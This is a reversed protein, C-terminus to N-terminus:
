GCSQPQVGKARGVSDVRARGLSARTSSACARFGSITGIATQSEHVEWAYGLSAVLGVLALLACGLDLFRYRRALVRDEEAGASEAVVRLREGEGGRLVLAHEGQAGRYGDSEGAAARGDHVLTGTIAVRGGQPARAEWMREGAESGAMVTVVDARAHLLVREDCDVRVRGGGGHLVLTFPRAFVTRAHETWQWTSPANRWRTRVGRQVISVSIPAGSGDAEVTGALEIPGPGLIPRTVRGVRENVEHIRRRRRRTRVLRSIGAGVLSALAVGVLILSGVGAHPELDLHDV